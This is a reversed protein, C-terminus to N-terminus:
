LISFQRCVMVGAISSMFVTYASLYSTFENSNKMINWPCMALGVTAAIYGGRRINQLRNKLIDTKSLCRFNMCHFSPVTCDSRMRGVGLECLYEHKTVLTLKLRLFRVAYSINLV